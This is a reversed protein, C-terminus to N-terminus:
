REIGRWLENRVAGGVARADINTESAGFSHRKVLGSEIVCEGLEHQM